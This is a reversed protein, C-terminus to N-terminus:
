TNLTPQQDADGFIARFIRAFLVWLIHGIVAILGLVFLLIFVSYLVDDM